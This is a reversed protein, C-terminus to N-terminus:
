AIRMQSPLPIRLRNDLLQPVDRLDQDLARLMPPDLLSQAKGNALSALIATNISQPHDRYPRSNGAAGRASGPTRSERM